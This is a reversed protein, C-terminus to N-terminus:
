QLGRAALKRGDVWRLQRETTQQLWPSM